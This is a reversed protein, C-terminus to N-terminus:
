VKEHFRRRMQLAIIDANEHVGRHEQMSTLMRPLEARRHSYSDIGEPM